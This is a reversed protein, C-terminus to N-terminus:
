RVEFSKFFKSLNIRNSKISKINHSEFIGYLGM